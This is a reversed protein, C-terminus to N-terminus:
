GSAGDSFVIQRRYITQTSTQSRAGVIQTMKLTSRLPVLVGNTTQSIPIVMTSFKANIKILHLQTPM